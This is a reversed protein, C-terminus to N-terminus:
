IMDRLRMAYVIHQAIQALGFASCDYVLHFPPQRPFQWEYVKRLYARQLEKERVLSRAQDESLGELSAVRAVRWEEPAELRISLGRPIGATAGAGGQGILIARGQMALGRLIVTTWHRIEAGTPMHEELTLTRFFDMLLHPKGLRERELSEATRHTDASLRALIERNYVRWPREDETRENLMDVLLTGLCYGWCGYQRSITLFPGGKETSRKGEIPVERMHRPMAVTSM